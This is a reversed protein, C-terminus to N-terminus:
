EYIYNKNNTKVLINYADYWNLHYDNYLIIELNSYFDTGFIKEFFRGIMGIKIKHCEVHYKYERMYIKALTVENLEHTFEGM